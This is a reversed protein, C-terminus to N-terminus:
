VHSWTLLQLLKHLVMSWVIWTFSSFSPLEDAWKMCVHIHVYTSRSAKLFLCLYISKRSQTRPDRSGCLRSLSTSINIRKKYNHDGSWRKNPYYELSIHIMCRKRFSTLLSSDERMNYSSCCELVFFKYWYENLVIANVHQDLGHLIPVSVNRYTSSKIHRCLDWQRLEHWRCM